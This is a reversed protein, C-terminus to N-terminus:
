PTAIPAPTPTPAVPKTFTWPGGQPCAQVFNRDLPLVYWTYTGSPRLNLDMDVTENQRLDFVAEFKSGDPRFIRLLYRPTRPGHWVFSLLGGGSVNFTENAPTLLEYAVCEFAPQAPHATGPVRLVQGVFIVNMDKLCNGQALEKVYTNYTQAIKALADDQKVTYTLKWDENPVCGPTTSPTPTEAGRLGPINVSLDLTPSATAAPTFSAQATTTPLRFTPPPKLTRSPTLTALPTYPPLTETPNSTATATLDQLQISVARNPLSRELNCAALGMMVLALMILLLSNRHQIPQAM